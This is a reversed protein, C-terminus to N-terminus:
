RATLGGDIVMQAGTVYAAEDSALYLALPAIEEPRGMRGLPQRAHLQQRTEEIEGAHYRQLYAEVFPTEVTGPCICNCRIGRDVFDMATSQTMSIVAGKTTGYAFRRSVAVQGAISAMNVIAGGQPDQALMQKVAAQSCNYVGNVNVAMLRSFDEPSTEILDGVMGIGANNVLIHLGGTQGVIQAVASEASTMDTVDLHVAIASGGESAIEQAVTNAADDNIDGIAVTAGQKGYLLAIQRGIGSGGGTVLATKGDLRFM